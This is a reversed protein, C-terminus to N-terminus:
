APDHVHGDEPHLLEAPSDEGLIANAADLGALLADEHFGYRFYSGAFLVRRGPSDRNLRPLEHQARIARLTFLPHTFSASKLVKGPDIAEPHNVTVFYNRPAKMRQLNNMWYHTSNQLEGAPTRRVSYNWSAWARRKRPMVSEDTHLAIRSERYGFEGLVARERDTPAHLLALAEDAHTALIVRDYHASPAGDSTQVSVGGDATRVVCAAAPRIDARTKGIAAMLRSVYERSGGTVIRWPHLTHLGLFGHNHFFRILTAAPFLLMQEPPTSWVASSMPILYLNLFDEGYGGKRVYDHLSLSKAHPLLRDRAADANFRSISSLLRWYRPRLLDHRQAFLTNFVSGRFEFGSDGHSVSFSMDTPQTPVNLAQFMRSLRPYTVENYVMFGTDVPFVKGSETEAIDVTCAHGGVHAEREYLTVEAHERLRYAAELGAIGAGVIAVRTKM